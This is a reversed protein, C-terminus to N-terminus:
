KHVLAYVDRRRLGYEAAVDTIADRRSRGAAEREAVAARLADDDPRVGPVAPAGAVVLTIEGRPDGDAAWRALEGLPRRLVEEYTKTLERCVAAPRDAGFTDALDTLAAAIRHPAEFLVLTREEAALARLRARRAGPARPLFGEFCFRDSPLGSLALATTVASPGPAATVPVGADLAARVLRYGPDSVSPMGGDTVLAVVYGETLVEVLEPTRREENGEFYSVIRGPITVDLDRALRNLRRTDEAAVVDVAALTDRLRTSADAPNGLPAGLLILRGTESMGGM